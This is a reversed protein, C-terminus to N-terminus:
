PVVKEVVLGQSMTFNSGARVDHVESAAAGELRQMTLLIAQDHDFEEFSVVSYRKHKFLVKSDNNIKFDAPLDRKDILVSRKGTDFFGGYTFNKNAAVFSLDYAFKRDIQVPIVVARQIAVKRKTVTKKGTKVDVDSKQIEYLDLPLGYKRKLVYIIRRIERLQSRM